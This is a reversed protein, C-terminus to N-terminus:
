LLAAALVGAALAAAGNGLFAATPAANKSTSTSSTPTNSAGSAAASTASSAVSSSSSSSGIVASNPDITGCKSQINTKCDAQASANNTNLATCEAFAEECTFTYMTQLYYQLGPASGNQCLCSYVLTSPECGNEKPNKDCLLTCTNQEARCWTGRTGLPVSNVDITFDTVNNDALAFPLATLAAVLLNARM